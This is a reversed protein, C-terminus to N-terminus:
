LWTILHSCVVYAKNHSLVSSHGDKRLMLIWQVGKSEKDPGGGGGGESDLVAFLFGPCFSCCSGTGKRAESLSKSQIRGLSTGNLLYFQFVGLKSQIKSLGDFYVYAVKLIKDPLKRRLQKISHVSSFLTLGM